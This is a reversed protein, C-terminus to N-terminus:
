SQQVFEGRRLVLPFTHFLSHLIRSCIGTNLHLPYIREM